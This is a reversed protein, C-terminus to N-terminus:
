QFRLACTKRAGTDPQVPAAPCPPEAQALLPFGAQGTPKGSAPPLATAAAALTVVFALIKM